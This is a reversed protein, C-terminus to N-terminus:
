MNREKTKLKQISLDHEEQSISNTKLDEEIRQKEIAIDKLEISQTLYKGM